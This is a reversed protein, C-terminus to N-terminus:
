LHPPQQVLRHKTYFTGDPRRKNKSWLTHYYIGLSRFERCTEIVQNHLHDELVERFEQKVTGVIIYLNDEAIKALRYYLETRITDLEQIDSQKKQDQDSLILDQLSNTITINAGSDFIM